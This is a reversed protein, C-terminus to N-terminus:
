RDGGGGMWGGGGFGGDCGGPGAGTGVVLNFYPFTSSTSGPPTQAALVAAWDLNITTINATTINASTVAPVLANYANTLDTTQQMTLTSPTTTYIAVFLSPATTTVTVPATANTMVLNNEFTALASESSPSLGDSNLTHFAVRIATLQGVTTTSALEIAQVDTQLKTFAASM